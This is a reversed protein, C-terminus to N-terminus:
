GPLPLPEPAPMAWYPRMSSNRDPLIDGAQWPRFQLRSVLADRLWGETLRVFPQGDYPASYRHLLNRQALTEVHCIVDTDYATGHIVNHILHPPPQIAPM